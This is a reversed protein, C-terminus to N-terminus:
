LRMELTEQRQTVKQSDETNPSTLFKVFVSYKSIYHKYKSLISQRLDVLETESHNCVNDPTYKLDHVIGTIDSSISM